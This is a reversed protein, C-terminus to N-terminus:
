TAPAAESEAAVAAPHMRQCELVFASLLGPPQQLFSAVDPQADAPFLAPFRDRASTYLPCEFLVHRVDEVGGQCHPCM